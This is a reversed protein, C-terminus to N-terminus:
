VHKQVICNYVYLALTTTKALALQLTFINKEMFFM